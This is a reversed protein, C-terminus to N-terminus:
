RAANRNEKKKKMKEGRLKAKAGKAAEIVARKEDGYGKNIVKLSASYDDHDRLVIGEALNGCRYRREEACAELECLETFAAVKVLPVLDVNESPFKPMLQYLRHIMERRNLLKSEEEVNFIFFRNETVQHMNGNIKEGVLEGQIAFLTYDESDLKEPFREAFWKATPDDKKLVMNRSCIMLPHNPQYILTHSAGDMKVTIDVPKDLLRQLLKPNNEANLENTKSILHTPFDGGALPTSSVHKSLEVYYGLSYFGWVPIKLLNGSLQCEGMKSYTTTYNLTDHRLCVGLRRAAEVEPHTFTIDVDPRVYIM